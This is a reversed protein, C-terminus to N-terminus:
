KFYLEYINNIFVYINNLFQNMYKCFLVYGKNRTSRRKKGFFTNNNNETRNNDIPGGITKLEIDNMLVDNDSESDSNKKENSKFSDDSNSGDESDSDM